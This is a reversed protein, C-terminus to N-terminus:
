VYLGEGLEIPNYTEKRIRKSYEEHIRVSEILIENIKHYDNHIINNLLEMLNGIIRATIKFIREQILLEKAVADKQRNNMRDIKKLKNTHEITRKYADNLILFYTNIAHIIISDNDSIEKQRLLETKIIELRKMTSIYGLSMLEGFEEVGIRKMGTTINKFYQKMKTLFTREEKTFLNEENKDYDLIKNIQKTFEEPDKIVIIKQKVRALTYESESLILMKDLIIDYEQPILMKSM